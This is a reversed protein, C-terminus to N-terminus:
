PGDFKVLGKGVLDELLDQLDSTCQDYTVDYESMLTQRLQDFSKPTDLDRWVTAAVSNFGYCDGRDVNLAVLDEGIGADLINTARRYTGSDM